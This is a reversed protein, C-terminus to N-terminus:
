ETYFVEGEHKEVFEFKITQDLGQALTVPPIFGSKAISTNFSSNSCFKKIRISSIPFKKGSVFAISDFIKGAIFGLAYPIRLSIKVKKGLARYIGQVLINMDFDPKDIYNYTHFGAEFTLTHQIFAAINEVYAMSKVNTGDGIM